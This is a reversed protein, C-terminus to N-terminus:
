TGGGGRLAWLDSVVGPWHQLEELDPESFRVKLLSSNSAATVCCHEEELFHVCACACVCWAHLESAQPQALKVVSCVNLCTGVIGGGEVLGQSM